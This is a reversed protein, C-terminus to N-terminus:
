RSATAITADCHGLEASDLARADAVYSKVPGVSKALAACGAVGKATDPADSTVCITGGCSWATGAAILKKRTPQAADLTAIITNGSYVTRAWAAVAPDLPGAQDTAVGREASGCKNTEGAECARVDARWAALEAKHTADQAKIKADYAAIQQAYQEAEAKKTAEYSAVAADHAASGTAAPESSTTAGAGLAAHARSLATAAEQDSPDIDLAQNADAAAAKADGSALYAEARKVHALEQDVRGLRGSDLATDFLRIATPNDGRGLAALAAKADDLPEARVAVAALAVAAMAALMVSKM